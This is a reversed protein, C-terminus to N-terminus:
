ATNQESIADLAAFLPLAQELAKEKLAIINEPFLAM